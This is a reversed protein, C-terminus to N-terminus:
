ISPSQSGTNCWNPILAKVGIAM